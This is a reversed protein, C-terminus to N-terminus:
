IETNIDRIESDLIAPHTFEYNMESVVQQVDANEDIWLTVVVQVPIRDDYFM